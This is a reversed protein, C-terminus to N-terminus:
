TLEGNPSPPLKDLEARLISNENFLKQYKKMLGYTEDNLWGLAQGRTVSKNELRIRLEQNETKLKEVQSEFSEGRVRHVEIGFIIM